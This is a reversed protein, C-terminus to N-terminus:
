KRAFGAVNRGGMVRANATKAQAGKRAAAHVESVDGGEGSGIALLTGESAGRGFGDAAGDTLAAGDARATASAPGGAGRSM